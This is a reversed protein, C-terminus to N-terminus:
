EDEEYIFIPPYERKHKTLEYLKDIKEKESFDDIIGTKIYRDITKYSLGMEEEDTQGEWLGASPAKEIIKENIDLYRALEYIESKVFNALPLLDVGSDGHKTFYGIKFESRNSSGIVLYNLKQAKYYLTTMRLRPKINASAMDESKAGLSNMYEDYTRSLDVKILDLELESGILRADEEDEEISHCPMIIGLSSKPFAKKALGAIVASDIGGSMGFVVGECSAEEVKKRLWLILSDVVKEINKLKFDNGFKYPLM